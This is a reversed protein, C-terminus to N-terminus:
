QQKKKQTNKGTSVLTKEAGPCPKMKTEQSLTVSPHFTLDKLM